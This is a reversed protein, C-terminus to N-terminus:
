QSPPKVFNNSQEIRGLATLANLRRNDDVRYFDVFKQLHQKAMSINGRSYEFMGAYYLATSNNPIYKLVLGMILGVSQYDGAEAIPHAISLVISVAIAQANQPLQQILNDALDIKGALAYCGAAFGKGEITNPPPSAHIATVAEVTNCSPKIKDFWIQEPLLDMVVTTTPKPASPKLVLSITVAALTCGGIILVKDRPLDALYSLINNRSKIVPIPKLAELAEKANLYRDKVNPEVMKQLWNIFRPDIGSVLHKFNFRYNADILKGIDVSSTNTLLCILTAGLSYIDSASTLSLNFTEEPPMFGPTGAAISSIAVEQSGLKALGFDILYANNQEDMLINEPKLDRHFIPSRRNQLYVLIRLISIAISKVVEPKFTCNEALSPANKYEQVMCFGDETEFSNLYKPIRPHNLEQLIQIEREYVKFGQWSSDTQLFRFQKIVVLQETDIAKALYSIRGGERNRGLERIVQYNRDSFNPYNVM